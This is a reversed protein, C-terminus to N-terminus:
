STEDADPYPEHILSVGRRLAALSFGATARYDETVRAIEEASIVDAVDAFGGPARQEVLQMPLEPGLGRNARVIAATAPGRIAQYRALAEDVNGAHRRLCGALVRADLIAQSAGNSGIPYMPHAADGLLTSRGFAWRDIPDRDVMPFLYTEPAARVIAPVDLWGFDWSVFAPLFDDLCGTRNWDEESALESEPRRLEAIFNFLQRGDDVDAIPYGVFKQEPHGAWVMTRGDLVPEMEAVGRWLLSGNWRVPGEDPYRQARAASHIGDAAVVLDAEVRTGNEFLAVARDGCDDMRTLRLGPHHADPGIRETVAELLVDQLAGRHSSLQPWPYGAALGRPERWIEQGRRTCYVLSSPAVSRAEVAARLGMADLERVAHPLLNIGVGLPRLERVAEFIEVDAGVEHLSLATALGGIGAGIVAARL